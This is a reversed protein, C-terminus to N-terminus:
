PREQVSYEDNRREPTDAEFKMNIESPSMPRNPEQPAPYKVPKNQSFFRNRANADETANMASDRQSPRLNHPRDPSDMDDIDYM